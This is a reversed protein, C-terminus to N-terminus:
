TPIKNKNFRLYFFRRLPFKVISRKGNISVDFVNDSNLNSIPVVCDHKAYFSLKKKVVKGKLSEVKPFYINSM